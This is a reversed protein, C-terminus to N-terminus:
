KVTVGKILLEIKSPAGNTYVTLTREFEYIRNTPDYNVKIHGKEGANIAYQTWEPTTCGCSAEVNSIVIPTSGQNLFTFITSTKGDSEKITGFDHVYKDFVLSSTNNFIENNVADKQKVIKEIRTHASLILGFFLCMPVLLLYKWIRYSKSPKRGMRQIRNQLHHLNFGIEMTGGLLGQSLKLLNYQYNYKNNGAKLVQQDTIFEINQKAYLKITWALPNYWFAITFFELLLIDISHYHRVHISEHQIICRLENDDYLNPNVFISRIFSFPGQNEGLVKVKEGFLYKESSRQRLRILHIFQFVLKISLFISGIAMTLLIYESVGWGTQRGNFEIDQNLVSFPSPIAPYSTSWLSSFDFFPIGISAVILLLFYIRNCTYFTEKHLFIRYFIFFAVVLLNIKLLCVIAPNM